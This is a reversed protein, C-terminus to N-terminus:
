IGSKGLYAGVSQYAGPNSAVRARQRDELAANTTKRQADFNMQFQNKNQALTDKALGLQQMGFYASALGSALNVAPAGWGQVQTGDPLKKGLVGSTDMWNSIGGWISPDAAAAGVQNAPNNIAATIGPDSGMGALYDPQGTYPNVPLSNGWGAMSNYNVGAM